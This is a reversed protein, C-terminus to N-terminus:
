VVGDQRLRRRAADDYGLEELITDMHEGLLPPANRHRIPTDALTVGSGSLQVKGMAPNNLKLHLGLARVQPDSFVDVMSQISSCPVDHQRLRRLWIERSQAAFAKALIDRLESYNKIRAPRDHFRIDDQLGPQGIAETLGKWFKSPSSLHVVFPLSDGALFAFVQASRVRTQRTPSEGTAFYRAAAEQAFSVSAQLLSTKVEQGRGTQDRAHLAALIGICAYLGTVHDSLSIGVPQPDSLDTLLSLLGSRAQGITDYGPQDRDPGKDGFGSISCYIIKPNRAAISKYDAGLRRMVGPRHNEILVDSREALGLLIERGADTQLDLTLSRKNRNVCCFHSSYGHEEWGRFPDGERPEVKIVQAGMDALLMAAFPGTLYNAVELVNIGELAGNM